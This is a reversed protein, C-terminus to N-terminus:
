FRVEILRGIVLSTTILKIVFKPFTQALIINELQDIISVATM